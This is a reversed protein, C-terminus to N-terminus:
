GNNNVILPKNAPDNPKKIYRVPTLGRLDNKWYGWLSRCAGYVFGVCAGKKAYDITQEDLKIGSSLASVLVTPSAVTELASEKISDIVPWLEKCAFDKANESNKMDNFINKATRLGAEVTMGQLDEGATGTHAEGIDMPGSGWGEGPKADISGYKEQVIKLKNDNYSHNKAVDDYYRKSLTRIREPLDVKDIASNATQGIMYSTATKLMSVTCGAAAGVATAGLVYPIVDEVYEGTDFRYGVYLDEDAKNGHPTCVYNNVIQDPLEATKDYFDKTVEIQHRNNEIYKCGLERFTEFTNRDQSIIYSPRLRTAIGYKRIKNVADFRIKLKKDSLKNVIRRQTATLNEGDFIDAKLSNGINSPLDSYAESATLMKLQNFEAARREDYTTDIKKIIKMMSNNNLDNMGIISPVAVLIASLVSIYIYKKM